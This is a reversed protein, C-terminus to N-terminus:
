NMNPRGGFQAVKGNEFLILFTYSQLAAPEGTGGQPPGTTFISPKLGSTGLPVQLGNLTMMFSPRYVSEGSVPVYQMHGADLPPYYNNYTWLEVRGAGPDAKSEVKSPRGMAMYVMDPTFGPAIVGKQVFLKDSIRLTAYVASKEQIRAGVGGDTECGAVLLAFVLAAGFPIVRRNM